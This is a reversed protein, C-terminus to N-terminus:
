PKFQFAPEVSVSIDQGSLAEAAARLRERAIKVEADPSPTGPQAQTRAAMPAALAAALERRTIKM